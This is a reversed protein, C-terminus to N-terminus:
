YESNRMPAFRLTYGQDQLSHQLCCDRWPGQSTKYPKMRIHPSFYITRCPKCVSMIEYSKLNECRHNHLTDHEPIHRGTIRQTAGSTESSCTAEIKLTSSYALCSVLSRSFRGQLHPCTGGFRRNEKLLSCPTIDWFISSQMVEATLVEFGVIIHVSSLLDIYSIRDM